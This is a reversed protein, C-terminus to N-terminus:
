ERREERLPRIELPLSSANCPMFTERFSGSYRFVPGLLPNTVKVEIRFQDHEDDYWECVDAAGTLWRPWRFQLPGEYFRQEGSKIRIGGRPDASLELDVALHQRNGLYDVIRQRADSYVMTADFQRIRGPFRFKRIWSVTERGWQDLYAYNHITFPVGLGRQPFMLHRRAGLALPMAAARHYWIQDMVGQGVCAMGDTSSFGFRERIRPHLRDFDAGLAQQYISQMM